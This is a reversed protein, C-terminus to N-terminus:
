VLIPGLANGQGPLGGPAALPEHAATGNMGPMDAILNTFTKWQEEPLWVAGWVPNKSNLASIKKKLGEFRTEAEAKRKDFEADTGGLLAVIDKDPIPFGATALKTKRGEVQQTTATKADIEKQLTERGEKLGNERAQTVLGTAIDKTLLEGAKLRREVETTVATDVGSNVRTNVEAVPVLVGGSIRKTIEADVASNFATSSQSKLSQMHAGMASNIANVQLLLSCFTQLARNVDMAAPAQDSPPLTELAKDYEGKLSMFHTKFPEDLCDAMSCMAQRQQTYFERIAKIDKLDTPLIM